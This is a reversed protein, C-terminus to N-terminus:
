LRFSFSISNFLRVKNATDACGIFSLTLNLLYIVGVRGNVHAALQPGTETVDVSPATYWARLLVMWVCWWVLGQNNRGGSIYCVSSNYHRIMM